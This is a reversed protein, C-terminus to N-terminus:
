VATKLAPKMRLVIATAAVLIFGISCWLYINVDLGEMPNPLPADPVEEVAVHNDSPVVTMAHAVGDHSLPMEDARLMKPLGRVEAHSGDAGVVELTLTGGSALESPAVPVVVTAQALPAATWEAAMTPSSWRAIVLNAPQDLQLM